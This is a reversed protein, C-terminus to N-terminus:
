HTRKKKNEAEIIMDKKEKDTLAKWTDSCDQCFRSYWEGEAGFLGKYDSLRCTWMWDKKNCSCCPEYRSNEKYGSLPERKTAYWATAGREAELKRRMSPAMTFMRLGRKLFQNM